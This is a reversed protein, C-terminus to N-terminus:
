SYSQWIHAESETHESHKSRETHLETPRDVVFGVAWRGIARDEFDAMLGAEGTEFHITAAYRHRAAV